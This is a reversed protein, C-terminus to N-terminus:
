SVIFDAMQRPIDTKGRPIMGPLLSWCYRSDDAHRRWILSPSLEGYSAAIVAQAVEMRERDTVPLYITGTRTAEALEAWDQLYGKAVPIIHEDAWERFIASNGAIKLIVPYQHFFRHSAADRERQLTDAIDTRPHQNAIRASAIQRNLAFNAALRKLESRLALRRAEANGSLMSALDADRLCSKLLFIALIGFRIAM